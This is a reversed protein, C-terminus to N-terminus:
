NPIDMEYYDMTNNNYSTRFLIMNKKMATRTMMM